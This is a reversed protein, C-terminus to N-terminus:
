HQDMMPGGGFRWKFPTESVPRHHKITTNPDEIREYVLFFLCLFGRILNPGWESM